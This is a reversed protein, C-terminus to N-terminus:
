LTPNTQSSFVVRPKFPSAVKQCPFHLWDLMYLGPRLPKEVKPSIHEVKPSIHVTDSPLAVSPTEIKPKAEVNAEVPAAVAEIVPKPKPVHPSTDSPRRTKGRAEYFNVSRENTRFAYAATKHQSKQQVQQIVDPVCAATNRIM